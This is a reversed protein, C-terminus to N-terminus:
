YIYNPLFFKDNQSHCIKSIFYRDADVKATALLSHVKDKTLGVMDKEKIWNQKYLLNFFGPGNAPNAISLM